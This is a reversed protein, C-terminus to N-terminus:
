GGYRKRSAIYVEEEFAPTLSWAGYHGLIVPKGEQSFQAVFERALERQKDEPTTEPDFRDPWVGLTIKDGWRDYLMHIDNMVQPDWSDFGGDIFCQVRTDVHGCSHLTAYRGKAHIHGTLQRMFPVFFEYAIEESFFPAKQAGWDDHINIGDVKPWYECIKDVVKCGFDTTAQFLEKIAEEQEEDVLAMAAPAFDMFSILREFWFGNVLSIQCPFRPDVKHEAADAAWDYSDLDPFHIKDKWERVDKLLPEGPRVISGGVTPVFEWEIGFADTNDHGMGRGLKDSYISSGIMSSDRGTPIWFPQKEFMLASMNERASVPTDRLPTAPGGFRGPVEDVIRLESETYPIKRFM